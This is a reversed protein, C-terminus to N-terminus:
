AEINSWITIPERDHWLNVSDLLENIHERSSTADELAAKSPVSLENTTEREDHSLGVDNLAPKLPSLNTTSSAKQVGLMNADLSQYLKPSWHPSPERTKDADRDLLQIPTTLLDRSASAEISEALSAVDDTRPYATTPPPSSLQLSRIYKRLFNVVGLDGRYYDKDKRHTLLHALVAHIRRPPKDLPIMSCVAQYKLRAQAAGRKIGYSRLINVVVPWPAKPVEFKKILYLVLAHMPDWRGMEFYSHM